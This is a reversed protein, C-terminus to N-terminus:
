KKKKQKPLSLARPRQRSAPQATAPLLHCLFRSRRCPPASMVPLSSPAPLLPSLSPSSSPTSMASLRPDHSRRCLSSTTTTISERHPHPPPPLPSPKQTTETITPIQLNNHIASPSPNPPQTGHNPHPSSRHNQIPM